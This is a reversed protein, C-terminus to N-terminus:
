AALRFQSKKKVNVRPKCSGASAQIIPRVM